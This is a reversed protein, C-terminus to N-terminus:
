AAAGHARRCATRASRAASSGALSGRGAPAGGPAPTSLAAGRLGGCRCRRATQLTPTRRRAPTRALHPPARRPLRRARATAAWWCRARASTSCSAACAATTASRTSPTSNLASDHSCGAAAGVGGATLRGGGWKARRRRASRCGVKVSLSVPAGGGEGLPVWHVVRAATLVLMSDGPGFAAAVVQQQAWPTDVEWHRLM